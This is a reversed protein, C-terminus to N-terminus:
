YMTESMLVKAVVEIHIITFSSKTTAEFQTLTLM